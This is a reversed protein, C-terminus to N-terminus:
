IVICFVCEVYLMLVMFCGDLIMVLIIGQLLGNFNFLYVEIVVGCYDVYCMVIFVKDIDGIQLFDVFGEGYVIVILVQIGVMGQMFIFLLDVVEVMVFCVEFQEFKNCIFKFWVEVGLIM